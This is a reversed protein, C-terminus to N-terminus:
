VRKFRPSTLVGLDTMEETVGNVNLKLKVELIIVTLEEKIKGM